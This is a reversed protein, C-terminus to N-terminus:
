SCTAVTQFIVVVKAPYAIDRHLWQKKLYVSGGLYVHYRLYGKHRHHAVYDDGHYRFAIYSTNCSRRHIYLTTAEDEATKRIVPTIVLDGAHYGKDGHYSTM